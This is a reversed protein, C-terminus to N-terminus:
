IVPLAHFEENTFIEAVDKITNDVYVMRPKHSMIQGLNLMELIAEDAEEQNSM